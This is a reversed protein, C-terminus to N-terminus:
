TDASHQADATGVDRRLFDVLRQSKPLFALKDFKGTDPCHQITQTLQRATLVIHDYRFHARRISRSDISAFLESPVSGIERENQQRRGRITIRSNRGNPAARTIEERNFIEIRLCQSSRHL